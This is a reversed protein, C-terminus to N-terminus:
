GWYPHLTDIMPESLLDIEAIVGSEDDSGWDGRDHKVNRITKPRFLERIKKESSMNNKCKDLEAMMELKM